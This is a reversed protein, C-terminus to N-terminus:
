VIDLFLSISSRLTQGRASVSLVATLYYCFTITPENQHPQLRLVAKRGISDPRTSICRRSLYVAQRFSSCRRTKCISSPGSCVVPRTRTATRALNPGINTQQWHSLRARPTLDAVERPISYM